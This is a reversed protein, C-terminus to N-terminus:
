LVYQVHASGFVDCFMSYMHLALVDCFMSYMHLALYM